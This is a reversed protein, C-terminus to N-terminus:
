CCDGDLDGTFDFTEKIEKEIKQIMEEELHIERSNEFTYYATWGKYVKRIKSITSPLKDIFNKVIGERVLHISSISVDEIYNMGKDYGKCGWYEYSGIGDNGISFTFEVEILHEGGSDGEIYTRFKPM